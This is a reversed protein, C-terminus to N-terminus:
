SYFAHNGITTILTRNKTIWFNEATNPNLFYLIENSVSVGELCLKAAVISEATPDNYIAGNEAPSFQVGSKTDFIVGYVTDPYNEAKVRNLVVNGVAIKGELVEGRSEACIIRSLWYVDESDYFNEGNKIYGSNPASVFTVGNETYTEGEIIEAAVSIPVSVDNGDQEIAGNCWLYRGNAIIFSDKCSVTLSLERDTAEFTAGNTVTCDPRAIRLFDSLSVTIEGSQVKTELETVRNDIVLAATIDTDAQSFTPIYNKETSDIVTSVTNKKYPESVYAAAGFSALLLVLSSLAAFSSLLSKKM